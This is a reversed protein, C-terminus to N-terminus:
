VNNNRRRVDSCEIILSDATMELLSAPMVEEKTYTVECRGCTYLDLEPVFEVPIKHVVCYYREDTM